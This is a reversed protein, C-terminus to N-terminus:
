TPSADPEQLQSKVDQRPHTSSPSSTIKIRFIQLNRWSPTEMRFCFDDRIQSVNPHILKRVIWQQAPEAHMVGHCQVNMQYMNDMPENKPVTVTRFFHVNIQYM